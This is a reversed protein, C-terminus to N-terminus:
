TCQFYRVQVKAERRPADCAAGTSGPLNERGSLVKAAFRVTIQRTTQWEM